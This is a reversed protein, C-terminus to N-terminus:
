KAAETPLEIKLNMERGIDLFFLVKGSQKSVAGSVLKIREQDHVGLMEFIFNLLKFVSENSFIEGQEEIKLNITNKEQLTDISFHAFEPAKRISDILHHVVQIISKEELALKITRLLEDKDWPKSIFRYIEGENVASVLSEFDSYGSLMISILDPHDKRVLRLFESGMMNPMRQDTIILDVKEKALVELGQQGGVAMLVDYGELKLMRSLSKLISEEDDVCLITKKESM